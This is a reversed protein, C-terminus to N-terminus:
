RTVASVREGDLEAGRPGILLVERTSGIRAAPRVEVTAFSAGSDVQVREVRGVPYGAPYRQGLGSTVILDGARIDANAPVFSLILQNPSDAGAAIARLGNRNVLVPLAHRPDTILIATSSFANVQAVQGIVGYADLLPQGVYVGQNAGKDIVIQRSAPSTEMALVDAAIVHEDFVVSSDLLERLRENERLLASYRLSRQRMARNEDRLRANDTVLDAHSRLRDSVASLADVPANVAIQIPYVLLSLTARVAALHAHRHDVSILIFSLIACSAFRAVASSSSVFM